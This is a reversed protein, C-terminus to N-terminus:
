KPEETLIRLAKIIEMLVRATADLDTGATRELAHDCWELLGARTEPVIRDLYHKM